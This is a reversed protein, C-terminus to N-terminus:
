HWVDHGYEDRETNAVCRIVDSENNDQIIESSSFDFVAVGQKPFSKGYVRYSSNLDWGNMRALYGCLSNSYAEAKNKKGTQKINLRVSYFDKRERAQLAFTKRDGSILFGVFAPYNMIKLTSQHIHIRSCRLYFSICISSDMVMDGQMM